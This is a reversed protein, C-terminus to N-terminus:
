LCGMFGAFKYKRSLICSKIDPEVESIKKNLAIKFINGQNDRYLLFAKKHRKSLEADTRITGYGTKKIKQWAQYINVPEQFQQM